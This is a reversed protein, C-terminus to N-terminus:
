KLAPACSKVTGVGPAAAREGTPNEASFAFSTRNELVSLSM